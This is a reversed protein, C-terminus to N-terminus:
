YIGAQRQLRRVYQIIMDVGQTGVGNIRPMDGFNWHHAIVGKEAAFHFSLDSHHNPEYIKHVLPPGKDAGVGKIGHCKACHTKFLAEGKLLAKHPPSNYEAEAKFPMLLLIVQFVIVLFFNFYRLIMTVGSSKNDKM